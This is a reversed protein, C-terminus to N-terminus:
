RFREFSVNEDLVEKSVKSRFNASANPPALITFVRYHEPLEVYFFVRFFFCVKTNSKGIAREFELVKEFWEIADDFAELDMM